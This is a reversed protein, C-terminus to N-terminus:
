KAAKVAEKTGGYIMKGSKGVVYDSSKSDKEEKEMYSKAEEWATKADDATKFYMIVLAQQGGKTAVLVSDVGKIGAMSLIGPMYDKDVEAVYGNKVLAAKADDPNSAPVACATLVLMSVMVVAIIATILVFQKKMFLNDEKTIFLNYCQTKNNDISNM